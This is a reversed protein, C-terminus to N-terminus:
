VLTVQSSHVPGFSSLQMDLVRCAEQATALGAAICTFALETSVRILTLSPSLNEQSALFHWSTCLKGQLKGLLLLLQPQGALLQVLEM